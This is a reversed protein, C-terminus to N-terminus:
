RNEEKLDDPYEVQGKIHLTSPSDEGNFYVSITKNFVGPYAADYKITIEGGAGPKIPKKTWEPVTCGCSTEVNQILLPSEGPNTFKFRYEAETKYPLRSFNYDENEFHVLANNKVV